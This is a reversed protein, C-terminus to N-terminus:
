EEIKGDITIPLVRIDEPRDTMRDAETATSM